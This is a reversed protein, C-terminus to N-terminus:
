FACQCIQPIRQFRRHPIHKHPFHILCIYTFCPLLITYPYQSIKDRYRLRINNYYVVVFVKKSLAERKM